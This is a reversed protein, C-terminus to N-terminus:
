MYFGVSTLSKKEKQPGYKRVLAISVFFNRPKRGASLNVSYLKMYNEFM